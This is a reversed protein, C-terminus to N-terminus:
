PVYRLRKNSGKPNDGRGKHMTPGELAGGLRWNQIWPNRKREYTLPTLPVAQKLLDTSKLFGRL